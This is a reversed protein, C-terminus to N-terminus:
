TTYEGAWWVVTPIGDSGMAVVCAAGQAPLTKGHIAGWRSCKYPSDTSYEPVIVWLPESFAKPAPKVRSVYGDVIPAHETPGSENITSVGFRQAM